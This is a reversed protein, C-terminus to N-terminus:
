RRGSLFLVGLLAIAAIGGFGAMNVPQPQVAETPPQVIQTTRRADEKVKRAGEEIKNAIGVAVSGIGPLAIPAVAKVAKKM